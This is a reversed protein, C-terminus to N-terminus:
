YCYYKGSSESTDSREDFDMYEWDEGRMYDELSFDPLDLVHQSEDIQREVDSRLSEVFNREAEVRMADEEKLVELLMESNRLHTEDTSAEIVDEYNRPDHESLPGNERVLDLEAYEKEMDSDISCISGMEAAIRADEEEQLIAMHMEDLAEEQLIAAHMEDSLDQDGDERKCHLAAETRIDEEEQLIAAHMGELMDQEVDEASIHDANGDQRELKVQYPKPSRRGEDCAKRKRSIHSTPPVIQATESASQSAIETGGLAGAM